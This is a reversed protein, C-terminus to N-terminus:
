KKIIIVIIIILITIIIVSLICIGIIEKTSLLKSGQVSEQIEIKENDPVRVNNLEEVINPFQNQACTFLIDSAITQSINKITLKGGKPCSMNFGAFNMNQSNYVESMCQTVKNLDINNIITAIQKAVEPKGNNKLNTIESNVATHLLEKFNDNQVCTSNIKTDIKQSLGSVEVDCDKANIQGVSFSQSNNVSSECMQTVNLFINNKINDLSKAVVAEKMGDGDALTSYNTGM